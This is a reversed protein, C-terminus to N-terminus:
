EAPPPEPPPTSDTASSDSILDTLPATTESVSESTVTESVTTVADTDSAAPETDSSSAETDSSSEPPVSTATTETASSTSWWAIWPNNPDTDTPDWDRCTENWSITMASPKGLPGPNPDSYFEVGAINSMNVYVWIADELTLRICGMSCSTGLKDYEAYKLSAKDGWRLYPVSHFLINGTIQTAYRGYVNGFLSLWTWKGKGYLSYIGSQPTDAGTSCVMVKIPVTHYGDKDKAYVTVTNCLNNVKVYFPKAEDRSGLYPHDPRPETASTEVTYTPPATYVPETVCVTTEETTTAETTTETTTETATTAKTTRATTTAATTTGETTAETTTETTAAETTVATTASTSAETVASTDSSIETLEPEASGCAAFGLLSVAVLLFAIVRYMKM